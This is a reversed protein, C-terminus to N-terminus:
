WESGAGGTHVAGGADGEDFDVFNRSEASARDWRSSGLPRTNVRSM